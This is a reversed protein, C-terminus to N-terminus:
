IEDTGLNFCTTLLSKGLPTFDVSKLKSLGEGKFRLMIERIERINRPKFLISLLESYNNHLHKNKQITLLQRREDDTANEWGVILPLRKKNRMFDSLPSKWTLEENPIYDILDDRIQGLTGFAMGIEGLINMLKEKNSLLGAIRFFGKYQYGTTLSIMQLYSQISVDPVEKNEFQVDMAQGEYVKKQIDQIESLVRIKKGDTIPCNLILQTSTSKLIESVTLTTSIGWKVHHAPRNARRESHDLIDDILIWSFDILELATLADVFEWPEGGAAIVAVSTFLVRDNNKKSHLADIMPDRFWIPCRGYIKKKKEEVMRDVKEVLSMFDKWEESVPPDSIYRERGNSYEEFISQVEPLLQHM